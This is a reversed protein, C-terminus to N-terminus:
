ANVTERNKIAMELAEAFAVYGDKHGGCKEMEINGRMVGIVLAFSMVYDHDDLKRLTNSAAEIRELTNM